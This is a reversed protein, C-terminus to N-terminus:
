GTLLMKKGHPRRNFDAAYRKPDKIAREFKYKEFAQKVKPDNMQRPDVHHTICYALEDNRQM